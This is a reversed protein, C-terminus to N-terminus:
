PDPLPEFEIHLASLGRMIFTPDYEYKREGAPGHMEESIRINAMRDLLRNMSIRAEARALPAGPCSHPGRGFAVHERVNGRDPRFEHPNEFKRPDRNSAGPLLMVITGAPIDADGLTTTTRALRFHSKVPSETRLCEELFTPIRTREDRLVQQIDPREGMVRMATSLLKTTTEMGAAFLFTALKVVEDVDPVSGDPYTAAALETLVDERPERRRDIVYSAFKEDLWMLPNHAVTDEAGIDGVVEDGLARRFEDHDELPVGLLDAIVLMSLPKAFDTMFECSGRELFKDIQRDVLRWMFDQNEALRKPTILKSLLGRTRAHQEADMTVVHEAMPIATRHEEIQATIDDGEPTFPLPPFPGAVAVCSSMAPDKYAALAEQHGTVAMVGYPTARQVPCKARLYDFYPYPDPVLSMDTFYDVSEFDSM